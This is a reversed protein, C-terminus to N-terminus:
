YCYCYYIMMVYYELNDRNINNNRAVICSPSLLACVLSVRPTAGLSAGRQPASSPASGREAHHWCLPASCASCLSVAFRSVHSVQLPLCVRDAHHWCLPASCASCLSVAFRSVHSVQLPLCFLPFCRFPVHPFGSLARLCVSLCVRLCPFCVTFVVFRFSLCAFDEDFRARETGMALGPSPFLAELAFATPMCPEKGRQSFTFDRLPSLPAGWLRVCRGTTM